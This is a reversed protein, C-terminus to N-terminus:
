AAIIFGERFFPWCFSGRFVEREQWPTPVARGWMMVNSNKRVRERGFVGRWRTWATLNDSKRVLYALYALYAVAIPCGRWKTRAEERLPRAWTAGEFPSFPFRGGEKKGGSQM